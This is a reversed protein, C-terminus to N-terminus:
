RVGGSQLAELRRLRQEALRLQEQLADASPVVEADPDTRRAAATTAGRAGSAAVPIRRSAGASTPGPPTAPPTAPPTGPAAPPAAPAAPPSTAAGGLAAQLAAILQPSMQLQAALQLLSSAQAPTVSGGSALQALLSQLQPPLQGSAALMMLLGQLSMQGQVNMQAMGITPQPVMTMSPAAMPMGGMAMGGVPMVPMSMMPVPLMTPAPAVPMTTTVEAPQPVMVPRMIPIPIRITDFMLGMRNRQRVQTTMVPMQAQPYTPAPAM